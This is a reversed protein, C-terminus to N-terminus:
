PLPRHDPLVWRCSFAPSQQPRPISPIYPRFSRFPAISPKSV